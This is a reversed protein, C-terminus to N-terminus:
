VRRLNLMHKGSMPKPGTSRTVNIKLQKLLKVLMVVTTQSRPKVLEVILRVLIGEAINLVISRAIVKRTTTSSLLLLSSEEVASFSGLKSQDLTRCKLIRNPTENKNMETDM